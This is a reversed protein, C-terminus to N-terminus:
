HVLDPTALEFNGLVSPGREFLKKETRARAAQVGCSRYGSLCVSQHLIRTVTMNPVTRTPARRKPQVPPLVVFPVFCKCKCQVHM